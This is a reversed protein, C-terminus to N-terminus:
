GAITGWCSCTQCVKENGRIGHQFHKTKLKIHYRIIEINQMEARNNIYDASSVAKESTFKICWKYCKDM